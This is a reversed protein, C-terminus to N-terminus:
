NTCITRQGGCPHGYRSVLGSWMLYVNLFFFIFAPSLLHTLKCQIIELTVQSLGPFPGLESPPTTSSCVCCARQTPLALCRHVLILIDGLLIHATLPADRAVSLLGAYLGLLTVGEPRLM